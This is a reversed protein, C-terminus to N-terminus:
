HVSVPRLDNQRAVTFAMSRAQTLAICHGEADHVGWIEIGAPVADQLDEPLAHRSVRRIYATSGADLDLQENM